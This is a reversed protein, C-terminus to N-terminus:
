SLKMQIKNQESISSCDNHSEIWLLFGRGDRVPSDVAHFMEKIYDM